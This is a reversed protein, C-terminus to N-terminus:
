SSLQKVDDRSSQRKLDTDARKPNRVAYAIARPHVGGDGRSGIARNRAHKTCGTLVSAVPRRLKRRQAVHKVVKASRTVKVAASIYRSAGGTIAGWRPALLTIL